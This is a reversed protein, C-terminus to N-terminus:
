ETCPSNILSSNNRLDNFKIARGNRTDGLARQRFPSVQSTQVTHYRTACLAAHNANLSLQAVLRLNM